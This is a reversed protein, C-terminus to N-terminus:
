CGSFKRYYVEAQERNLAYRKQLKEIIRKESIGEDQNDLILVTIAEERAEERAQERGEERLRESELQLVRGGMIEGIGKRVEKEERFIYEVIRMILSVMDTHRGSEKEKYKKELHGYIEKYEELLEGRKDEDKELEEGAKEYRMVYFPLLMDLGKAILEEKKYRSMKITPIRYWCINGEPMLVEAELYDPTNATDRLYLVCSRPFEIYYKRGEKKAHEVGIRFDYEIMRVAMTTDDTSECEIHYLKEGIQLCSDCIVEGSEDQHENRLQAMEVEYGYDTDFVENILPVTLEPMKEVMTRFVDDFITNDM